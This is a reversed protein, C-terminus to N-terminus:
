ILTTTFWATYVRSPPLITVYPKDEFNDSDQARGPLGHWPELCVYPASKNPMSWVEMKPFDFRLGHGSVRHVLDVSRSRPAAFVLADRSDFLAHSLPLIRGSELETLKEEGDLLYGGPALSNIGDEEQAFILRYDEYAAGPEMPVNFAPHGGVCCPMPRDSRNEILFTTTYGADFLRYTVHFAYSFPYMRRTEESDTLVLDVFDEGLHSVAFDPERTFGHKTMPYEEGAIRIKGNRVSGCVPFLVPAHQAWVAPDAQWIVERGDPGRFSAIQAGKTQIRATTDHYKLDIMEM